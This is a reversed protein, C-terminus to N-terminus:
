SITKVSRLFNRSWAIIVETRVYLESLFWLLYKSVCLVFCIYIEWYIYTQLTITLISTKDYSMPIKQRFTSWHRTLRSTPCCCLKHVVMFLSGEELFRLVLFSPGKDCKVEFSYIGTVDEAVIVYEFPFQIGSCICFLGVKCISLVKYTPVVTNEFYM